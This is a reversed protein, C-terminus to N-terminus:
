RDGEMFIIEVKSYIILYITSFCGNILEKLFRLYGGGYFIKLKFFDAVM